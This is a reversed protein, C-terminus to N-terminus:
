EVANPHLKGCEAIKVPRSEDEWFAVRANFRPGSDVFSDPRFQDEPVIPEDPYTSAPRRDIEEVYVVLRGAGLHAVTQGSISYAEKWVLEENIVDPRLEAKGKELQIPTRLLADGYTDHTEHFFSVKLLPRQIAAFDKVLENAQKPDRKSLSLTQEVNLDKIGISGPGALLLDVSRGDRAGSTCTVELRRRPLLAVSVVTPHSVKLAESIAHEQYRVLGFRVFPESPRYTRLDIDIYFEERDLDFCPEYTLLSVCLFESPESHETSAGIEPAAENAPTVVPTDPSSADGQSDIQRAAKRVPMLAEAVTYPKHPSDKCKAAGTFGEADAFATSPILMVKQPRADGRIPDGGWRTIFSGGPGIDSDDFDAINMRRGDHTSARDAEFDHATKDFYRPPWLVLGVREGEGSSYWGRGFYLRTVARRSVVNVVDGRCNTSASREWLLSPEPRRPACAVPRETSPAWVECIDSLISQEEQRLAQRRRLLPEAKNIYVPQTEFTEAFRSLARITLRLHRARTDLLQTPQTASIQRVRATSDAIDTPRAVAMKIPVGAIAAAHLCGLHLTTMRERTGGFVPNEAPCQDDKKDSAPDGGAPTIPAAAPVPSGEPPRCNLLAGIAGAAPLNDIRLLTIREKPLMVRGNRDVDFGVVHRPSVFLRKGDADTRRPWRGSRRSILSRSRTPDDMLRGSVAAGEAIIEFADIQELDVRLEGRLLLTKVGPRDTVPPQYFNDATVSGPRAICLSGWVPKGTAGRPRNIAHCVRLQAVAAIEEIPWRTRVADILERAVGSVVDADPVPKGALGAMFQSGARHCNRLDVGGCRAELAARAEADGAAHVRQQAITQPLSFTFAFSEPRPLCAVELNFDEGEFLELVIHRVRVGGGAPCRGDSGLWRLPATTAGGENLERISSVPVRRLGTKRKICVALPLADPYRIGAPPEYLNATLDGALYCESGRIRARVSFEWAAPDPLWGAAGEPVHHVGGVEIVPIGPQDGCLPACERTTVAEGDLAPLRSTIVSRFGSTRPKADGSLGTCIERIFGVGQLGGRLVREFDGGDFKGHRVVHDLAAEPAVFIRTTEPPNLRSGLTAYPPEHGDRRNPPAGRAACSRGNESAPPDAEICTRVIAQDLQEFGMVGYRKLALQLPMLLNPAQISEHRLFRRPRLRASEAPPLIAVGGNRAHYLAAEGTSPSGGGAFVSRLSFVYPVGYRLPPPRLKTRSHQEDDSTPPEQERGFPLSVGGPIPESDQLTLVSAPTGDWLFVAEEAIVEHPAQPPATGGPLMPLHRAVVQFSTEELFGSRARPLAPMLAALVRDAAAHLDRFHFSVRRWFLSRWPLHEDVSAGCEVAAVDVRRGVTLNEAYLVIEGGCANQLSAIALERAIQNGRGRDLLSLGGTNHREGRDIADPKSDVARRIDLSSLDWRPPDGAAADDCGLNWIGDRQEVYAPLSVARGGKPDDFSQGAEFISVPWFSRGARTYRAATVILPLNAVPPSGVALHVYQPSAAAALDDALDFDVDVALCFLRSLVPDGQLSYFLGLLKDEKGVSGLQEAITKESVEPAQYDSGDASETHGLSKRRQLWNGYAHSARATASSDPDRQAGAPLVACDGNRICPAPAAGKSGTLVSKASQFASNTIHRDCNTDSVSDKYENYLHERIAKQAEQKNQFPSMPPQSDALKMGEPCASSGKMLKCQVRLAREREEAIAFDAQRVPVIGCLTPKDKPRDALIAGDHDFLAGDTPELSGDESYLLESPADAPTHSDQPNIVASTDTCMSRDLEAALCAEWEGGVNFCRRWLQNVSGWDHVSSLRHTIGTAARWEKAGGIIRWRLALAPDTGAELVSGLARAAREPWDALPFGSAAKQPTMLITARLRGAREDVGNAVVRLFPLVKIADTM